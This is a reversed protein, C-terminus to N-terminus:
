DTHQYVRISGDADGSYLKDEVMLMSSSVTPYQKTKRGELIFGNFDFSYETFETKSQILLRNSTTITLSIDANGISLSALLDIMTYNEHRWLRIEGSESFTIIYKEERCFLMSTLNSEHAEGPVNEAVKVLGKKEDTKWITINVLGSTNTMSHGFIYFQGSKDQLAVKIGGYKTAVSTANDAVDSTNNTLQWVKAYSDMSATVITKHDPTVFIGTINNSHSDKSKVVSGIKGQANINVLIVEFLDAGATAIHLTANANAKAPPPIMVVDKLRIVGQKLITFFSITKEDVESLAFAATNWIKFNAEGGESISVLTNNWYAM